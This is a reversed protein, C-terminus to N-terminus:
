GKKIQCTGFAGEIEAKLRNFDGKGQTRIVV